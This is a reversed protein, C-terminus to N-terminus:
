WVECVVEGGLNAARADRDCMLGKSTSIVTMGLGSRVRSIETARKYVRRSPRSVRQVGDIMPEGSERYRIQIVLDSYADGDETRIEGVFGEDSLVRAVSAKFSSSPCRAEAHGVLGANRIRTLMDGIPDTMM